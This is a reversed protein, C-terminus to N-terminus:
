EEKPYPIYIQKRSIYDCFQRKVSDMYHRGIPLETEDNLVLKQSCFKAIYPLHVLYSRHIRLFDRSTLDKELESMRGYFCIPKNNHTRHLIIQRNIVEFYTIHWFPISIISSNIERTFLDDKQRDVNKVARLFTREFEQDTLKGKLLYQIAEVDFAQGMYDPTSTLFIIQAHSGFDRFAQAVAMGNTKEMLIDMYLIDAHHNCEYLDFLLAEASEFCSLQVEINNKGACQTIQDACAKLDLHNDDCLTIQLM